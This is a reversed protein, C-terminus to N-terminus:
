WTREIDKATITKYEWGIGGDIWSKDVGITDGVRIVLHDDTILMDNVKVGGWSSIVARASSSSYTIFYKHVISWLDTTYGSTKLKKKKRGKPIIKPEM